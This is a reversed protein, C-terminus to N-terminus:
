QQPPSSTVDLVTISYAPVATDVRADAASVPHVAFGAEGGAYSM